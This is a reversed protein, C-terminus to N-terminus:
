YIKVVFSLTENLRSVTIVVDDGVKKGKIYDDIRRDLDMTMGDVTLIIDTPQIGGRQATSDGEVELVYFGVQDLGPIELMDGELGFTASLSSKQSLIRDVIKELESSPVVATYPSVELRETLEMSAIGALSGDMTVVAGGNNGFYLSTSILFVPLKTREKNEVITYLEEAAHVQGMTLNGTEPDGKPLAILLTTQALSLKNEVQKFPPVKDLDRLRLLGLGSPEDIGIISAVMLVEQEQEFLRVYIQERGRLMDAPALIYGSEGYIVGTTVVKSNNTQFAYRSASIGVLNPATLDFATRFSEREYIRQELENYETSERNLLDNAQVIRRDTYNKMLLLLILSFLIVAGIGLLTLLGTRHTRYRVTERNFIRIHGEQNEQENRKKKM